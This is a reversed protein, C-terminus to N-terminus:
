NARVLLTVELVPWREEKGAEGTLAEADSPHVQVSLKESACLYKVLVQPLEHPLEHPPEHPPEFWIIEGIRGGAPAAVSVPLHDRGWVKTVM